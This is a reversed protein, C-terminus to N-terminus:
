RALGLFVILRRELEVMQISELRGLQNGISSRRVTTVEDVMVFSDTHLGSTEDAPVPLRLLPADVDAATFPCVTVSNTGAFLDEQMIFAPRPKTGYVGGAVLM